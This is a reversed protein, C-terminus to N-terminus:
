KALVLLSYGGFLRATLQLSFKSFLWRPVNAVSKKLSPHKSFLGMADNIYVFDLIEHGTDKLTAIASDMTFYHLHGFTYRCETFTNRLVSSVHLDLPIHYIKHEAKERCKKVFGIYDPVHELVDIVLLIDFYEKNNELLIDEYFFSVNKNNIKQAIEIAQPSIDYGIFQVYKLYDKKSLEDLIAGAGCGIEAIRNPQLQNNQIIKSIYDAKWSSDESHWTQTAELYKGNTYISNM